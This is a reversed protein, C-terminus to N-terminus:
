KATGKDQPDWPDRAIWPAIEWTELGQYLQDALQAPGKLRDRWAFHDVVQWLPIVPLEDRSERDIQLALARATPVDSAHELQLLLQMIRPSAASALPDVHPPADYAPCLLLGADLVPDDCRVVRYALDFPRGARLETELRSEPLESAVIEVGATRFADALKGAVARAEPIAPFEFKLTIPGGGREKRAAAVLMRALVLDFGLPKVGPADASCGKPFPGDSPADADSSPRKLVNVELLTKRDVANSLGRRLARSRLAPSRGDLAIVHVVPQAYRGVQIGPTGALSALQDPSVHDIMSVDGRLLAAVAAQGQSLRFERIRRIRPAAEGDKRGAASQPDDRLRLEVRQNTSEVCRYPGNSVLLREQASTAVRGDIGAHAPGVPGLLWGGVKLPAYNLRLEVRTEDPVEVRDLLDDWRAEYNPSHPDSRDILAHGVDIASTPRSGDCWIAGSRIRILL